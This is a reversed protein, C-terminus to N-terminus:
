DFFVAADDDVVSVDSDVSAFEMSGAVPSVYESSADEEPPYM